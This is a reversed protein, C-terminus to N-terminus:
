LSFKKSIRAINPNTNKVHQVHNLHNMHAQHPSIKKYLAAQRKPDAPIKKVPSPVKAPPISGDEPIKVVM